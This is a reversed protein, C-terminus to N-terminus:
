KGGKVFVQKGSVVDLLLRGGDIDFVAVRDGLWGIADKLNFM